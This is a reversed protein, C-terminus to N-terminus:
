SPSEDDGSYRYVSFSPVSLFAGDLELFLKAIKLLEPEDDVCLVRIVEPM